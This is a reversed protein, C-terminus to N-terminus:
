GAIGSRAQAVCASTGLEEWRHLRYRSILYYPSSSSMGLIVIGQREAEERCPLCASWLFETSAAAIAPAYSGIMAMEAMINIYPFQAPYYLFILQGLDTLNHQLGTLVNEANLLASGPFIKYSVPQELAGMGEVFPVAGHSILPHKISLYSAFRHPRSEAHACSAGTLVLVCLCVSLSRKM